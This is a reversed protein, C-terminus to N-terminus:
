EQIRLAKRLAACIATGSVFTSVAEAIGNVAVLGLMFLLLSFGSGGQYGYATKSMGLWTDSFILWNFLIYLATNFLPTLLSCVGDAIHVAGKSKSSKIAAAILAPIFGAAVRTLVLSVFTGVPSIGLMVAGMASAGFCQVFSTIGFVLGLFAGAAPGLVAGGIAVPVTIFTIEVGWPTRLYGIPTFAMLLVIATLMALQTMTYLKKNKM